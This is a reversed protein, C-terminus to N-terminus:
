VDKDLFVLVDEIEQLRAAPFFQVFGDRAVHFRGNLIERSGGFFDRGLIRRM